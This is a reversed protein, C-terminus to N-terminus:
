PLMNASQMALHSPVEPTRWRTRHRPLLLLPSPLFCGPPREGQKSLTQKSGRQSDTFLRTVHRWSPCIAMDARMAKIICRDKSAAEQKLNCIRGKAEFTASHGLSMSRHDLLRTRAPSTRFQKSQFQSAQPCLLAVFSPKSCFSPELNPGLWRQRPLQPLSNAGVTCFGSSFHLNLIVRRRFKLELGEEKTRGRIKLRGRFEAVWHNTVPKLSSAKEVDRPRAPPQPRPPPAQVGLIPDGLGKQNCPPARELDQHLSVSELDKLLGRVVVQQEGLFTLRSSPASILGALAYSVGM